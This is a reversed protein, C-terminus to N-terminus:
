ARESDDSLVPLTISATEDGAEMLFRFTTATGGVRLTSGEGRGNAKINLAGVNVIRSLKSLREFFQAIEHYGGELELLFPVEAYFDHEL